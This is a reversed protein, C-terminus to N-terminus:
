AAADAVVQRLFRRLGEGLGDDIHAPGSIGHTMWGGVAGDADITKRDEVALGTVVVRRHYQQKMPQRRRGAHVLRQKCPERIAIAQDCGVIGAEAM